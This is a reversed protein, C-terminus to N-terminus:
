VSPGTFSQKTRLARDVHEGGRDDSGNGGGNKNSLFVLVLCRRSETRYM